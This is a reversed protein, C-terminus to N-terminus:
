KGSLTKGYIDLLNNIFIGATFEREVKLRGAKGMKDALSKDKLLLSIKEAMGAIDMRKVLFGTENDALWDPIGGVNFAVVPKEYSM